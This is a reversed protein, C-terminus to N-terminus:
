DLCCSAIAIFFLEVLLLFSLLDFVFLLEDFYDWCDIESLRRFLIQRSEFCNNHEGSTSNPGPIRSARATLRGRMQNHRQPTALEAPSRLAVEGPDTSGEGGM